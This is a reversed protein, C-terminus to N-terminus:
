GGLGKKMLDWGAGGSIVAMVGAALGGSGTSILVDITITTVGVIVDTAATALFLEAEGAPANPGTGGLIRAECFRTEVDSETLLDEDIFPAELPMTAREFLAQEVIGIAAETAGAKRFEEIEFAVFDEIATEQVVDTEPYGVRELWLATNLLLDDALIKRVTGCGVEAIVSVDSITLEGQMWIEAVANLDSIYAEADFVNTSPEQAQTQVAFVGFVLLFFTKTIRYM